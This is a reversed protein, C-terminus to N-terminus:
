FTATANSVIASIYLDNFACPMASTKLKLLPSHRQFYHCSHSDQCYLFYPELTWGVEFPSYCLHGDQVVTKFEGLRQL